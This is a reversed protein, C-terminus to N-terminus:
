GRKLINEDGDALVKENYRTFLIGSQPNEWTTDDYFEVEEPYIVFQKLDSYKAQYLNWYGGSTGTYAGPKLSDTDGLKASFRDFYVKTPVGDADYAFLRLSYSKIVKESVNKVNVSIIPTRIIDRSLKYYNLQIPSLQNYAKRADTLTHENQVKSRYSVELARYANEAAKLAQECEDSFVIEGIGDILAEVEAVKGMMISDYMQEANTLINFNKVLAQQEVSLTDYEMRAKTIVQKSKEDVTGIKDIAEEVANAKLSDFKQRSEVLAEYNELSKQEGETLANYAEEAESIAKESSDKVEGISLILDDVAQAEETKGCGTLLFSLMLVLFVLIKSKHWKM